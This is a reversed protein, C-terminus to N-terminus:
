FLGARLFVSSPLSPDEGNFHVWMAFFYFVAIVLLVIQTNTLGFKKSKKNKDKKEAQDLHDSM